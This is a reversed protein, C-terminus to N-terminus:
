QSNKAQGRSHIYAACLGASALICTVVIIMGNRSIDAEPGLIGAETLTTLLLGLGTGMAGVKAVLYESTQKGPTM